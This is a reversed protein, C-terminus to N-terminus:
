ILSLFFLAFCFYHFYPDKKNKSFLVFYLIGHFCPKSTHFSVSGLDRVYFGTIVFAICTLKIKAAVSKSEVTPFMLM